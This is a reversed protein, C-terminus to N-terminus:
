EAEERLWEFDRADLAMDVLEKKVEPLVPEHSVLESNKVWDKKGNLFRVKANIEGPQLVWGVRDKTAVWEGEVFM